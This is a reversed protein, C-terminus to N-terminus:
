HPKQLVLLGDGLPLLLASLDEDARVREVLERIALTEPDRQSPDAVRDHWLANDFVVFGGARTLRLAEDLYEGYEVKDGDCFVLDYGGDNLRPLVDLASGTILRFRTPSIGASLFVQRALRQNEAELDVSTLVGDPLMGRLLALGSVGTGTGIEAVSKAGAAGALFSLAARAGPLVPVVGVTEAHQRATRLHDDESQFQEVYALSAETTM